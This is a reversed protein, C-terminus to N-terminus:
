LKSTAVTPSGIELSSTSTTAFSTLFALWYDRNDPLLSPLTSKSPNRGSLSSEKLPSSKFFIHIHTRRPYLCQQFLRIKTMTVIHLFYHLSVLLQFRTTHVTNQERFHSFSTNSTCIFTRWFYLHSHKTLQRWLTNYEINCTSNIHM